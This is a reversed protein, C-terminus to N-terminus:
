SRRLLVPDALAQFAVNGGHSHAVVCHEAHPWRQIATHLHTVLGRVATRRASISNSGSWMFRQFLVPADAARLLTQCLPSDPLIWTTKRGWTGHVLTVVVRPDSLPVDHPFQRARMAAGLGAVLDTVVNWLLALAFLAFYAGAVILAISPM